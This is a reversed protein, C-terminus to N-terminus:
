QPAHGILESVPASIRPPPTAQATPALGVLTVSPLDGVLHATKGELMERAKARAKARPGPSIPPANSLLENQAAQDSLRRGFAAAAVPDM